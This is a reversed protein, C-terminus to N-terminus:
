RKIIINQQTVCFATEFGAFDLCKFKTTTIGCNVILYLTISVM